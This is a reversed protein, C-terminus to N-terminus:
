RRQLLGASTCAGHAGYGGRRQQRRERERRQERLRQPRDRHVAVALRREDAIEVCRRVRTREERREARAPDRVHATLPEGDRDRRRRPPDEDGREPERVREPEPEGFVRDDTRTIEALLANLDESKWPQNVTIPGTLAGEGTQDGKRWMLNPVGTFNAPWGSPVDAAVLATLIGVSATPECM